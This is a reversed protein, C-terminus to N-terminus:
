VNNGGIIYPNTLEGNGSIRQVNNKLYFVPQINFASTINSRLINGSPDIYYYEHIQPNEEEESSEESDEPTTPESYKTIVWTNSSVNLWNNNDTDAAYLYDSIYMLGVQRLVTSSAMELNYIDIKETPLSNIGGIHWSTTAILDTYNGLSDYFSTDDSPYNLYNALDTAVYNSTVDDIAFNTIPTNKILKVKGDIIGIIRYLNAEPCPNTAGFCVYNNPNAGVYRYSNDSLDESNNHYVLNTINGDKFENILFGSFSSNYISEKIETNIRSVLTRNNILNAVIFILLMLFILFFSYVMSTSLFGKKNM